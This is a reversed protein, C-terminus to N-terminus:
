LGDVVSNTVTLEYFRWFTTEIPLVQVDAFGAEAAYRRLTGPRMVTGTAVTEPDGMADPLCAILSWGYETQELATGPVSFEEEAKVDVVLLSGGDSLLKRAARLAEVPRSMDHLAEIIMVFDYRETGSRGAADAVSFRVRDAVGSEKANIRAQEIAPSDLDTGDVTILPYERAMAISSWGMGCAIDAVRAPPQARLRKDIEPLSPLWEKGLMKRFLAGNTDVRGEPGWALPPPAQGTRYATVVDPLRRGYRALQV